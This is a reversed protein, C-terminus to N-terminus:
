DLEIGKRRALSRYAQFRERYALRICTPDSGCARREALWDRQQHRLKWRAHPGLEGMLKQYTRNMNSDVRSMGPTRCVAREDAHRATRCDFGAANAGGSATLCLAAAALALLTTRNM